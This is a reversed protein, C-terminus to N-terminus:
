DNAAEMYAALANQMAEHFEVVAAALSTTITFGGMHDITHTVDGDPRNDSRYAAVAGALNAMAWDIGRDHNRESRPGEYTYTPHTDNPHQGSPCWTVLSPDDLLSKIWDHLAPNTVRKVNKHLLTMAAREIETVNNSM